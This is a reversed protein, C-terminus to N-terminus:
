KALLILRGLEADSFELNNGECLYALVKAKQKATQTAKKRGQYSEVTELAIALRQPDLPVALAPAIGMLEYPNSHLAPALKLFSEASIGVGKRTEWQSVAGKSVGVQLAAPLVHLHAKTQRGRNVCISKTLLYNPFVDVV